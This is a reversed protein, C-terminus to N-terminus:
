GPCLYSVNIKSALRYLVPSKSVSIYFLHLFCVPVGHLSGQLKKTAAFDRDLESARKRAPELMVPIM